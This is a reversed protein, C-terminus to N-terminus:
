CVTWSLAVLGELPEPSRDLRAAIGKCTGDLVHASRPAPNSTEAASHVRRVPHGRAPRMLAGVRMTPNCTALREGM